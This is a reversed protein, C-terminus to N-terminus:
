DSILAQVFEEAGWAKTCKTKLTKELEGFPMDDLFIDFNDKLMVSPVIVQDGLKDLGHKTLGDIIDQGTLLGVVNTIGWFKSDLCAVQVTLNEVRQNIVNAVEQVTKKALTGNIWTVTKAQALKNPLNHAAAKFEDLFLSTVGVGDELQPYGGYEAYNPIPTDTMLYFEDSLFAFNKCNEETWKEVLSITELADDVGFRRLGGDHYKTLGVPVIAVSRVPKDQVQYLDNITKILHEGDNWEPCLVIQTHVPIDLSELWKLEELIPVSNTRGLLKNRLDNDTAHVSIYLPGPRLEEIRQRDSRSLNTMTVYSGHLYSLRFDDDKLHLSKRTMDMPQQDIFCFACKNACEQVGNFLPTEFELGLEEEPDKDFAIVENQGDLHKKVLLEIEEAQSFQFQLDMLDRFKKGNIELIQDGVKLGMEAGLSWAPASIITAPGAVFKINKEEGLEITQVELREKNVVANEM